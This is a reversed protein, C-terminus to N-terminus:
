RTTSGAMQSAPLPRVPEVGTGCGPVVSRGAPHRGLASGVPVGSGVAVGVGGAAALGVALGVGVEV